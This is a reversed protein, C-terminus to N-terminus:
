GTGPRRKKSWREFGCGWIYLCKSRTLATAFAGFREMCISPYILSIRGIAPFTKPLGSDYASSEGNRHFRPSTRRLLADMYGTWTAPMKAVAHFLILESQLATM